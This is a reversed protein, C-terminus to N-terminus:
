KPRAQRGLKNVDVPCIAFSNCFDLRARLCAWTYEFRDADHICSIGLNSIARDHNNHDDFNADNLEDGIKNIEVLTFAGGHPASTSGPAGRIQRAPQIITM